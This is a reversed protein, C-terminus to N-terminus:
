HPPPTHVRCRDVDCALKQQSQVQNAGVGSRLTTRSGPCPQWSRGSRRALGSPAVTKGQRKLLQASEEHLRTTATAMLMRFENDLGFKTLADALQWRSPGWLVRTKAGTAAGAAFRQRFAAIYLATQRYEPVKGDLKLHDYLSKCDTVLTTKM